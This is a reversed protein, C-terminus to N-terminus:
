GQAEPADLDRNRNLWPDEPNVQTVDGLLGEDDITVRHGAEVSVPQGGSSTVVVEGEVVAVGCPLPPLCRAAFRTGRVSAIANSEQIEFRSGSGTLKKVDHFTEGLGIKGVIATRGPTDDLEVVKYTTHPGIRSLSGDFYEIEALAGAATRIEVGAEVDATTRVAKFAESGSRTEVVGDVVRLEALPESAVRPEPEERGVDSFVTLRLSVWVLSAVVALILLGRKSM